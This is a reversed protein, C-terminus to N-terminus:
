TEENPGLYECYKSHKERVCLYTIIIIRYKFRGNQCQNTSLSEVFDYPNNRTLKSELLNYVADIHVVSNVFIAYFLRPLEVRITRSALLM